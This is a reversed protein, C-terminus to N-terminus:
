MYYIIYLIYYIIYLIDTQGDSIVPDDYFHIFILVTSPGVSRGDSWRALMQFDLARISSFIIMLSEAKFHLGDFLWKVEPDAISTDTDILDFWRYNHGPFNGFISLYTISVVFRFLPVPLINISTYCINHRGYIKFASTFHTFQVIRLREQKDSNVVNVPISLGNTSESKLFQHLLIKDEFDRLHCVM